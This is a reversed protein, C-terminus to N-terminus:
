IPANLQSIRGSNNKLYRNIAGSTIAGRGSRRGSVLAACAPWRRGPGLAPVLGEVVLLRVPPAQCRCSQDQRLHARYEHFELPAATPSVLVGAEDVAFAGMLGAPINGTRGRSTV